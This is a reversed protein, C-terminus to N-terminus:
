LPGPIQLVTAKRSVHFWKVIRRLPTGQIDRHVKGREDKPVDRINRIVEGDGDTYMYWKAKNYLVAYYLVAPGVPGPVVGDVNGHRESDGAHNHFATYM